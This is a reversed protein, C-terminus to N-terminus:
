ELYIYLVKPIYEDLWHANILETIIKDPRRNTMDENIITM